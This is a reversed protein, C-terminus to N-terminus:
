TLAKAPFVADIDVGVIEALKRFLAIKDEMECDKQGTAEDYKKAALLLKKIEEIEKKLADFEARTPGTIGGGGVIFPQFYENNRKTWDDAIFSVTCM